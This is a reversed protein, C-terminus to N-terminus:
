FYHLVGVVLATALLGFSTYEWMVGEYLTKSRKHHWYGWLIYGGAMIGTSIIQWSPKHALQNYAILWINLGIILLIYDSRTKIYTKKM